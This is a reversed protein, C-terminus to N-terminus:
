NFFDGFDDSVVDGFLENVDAEQTNENFENFMNEVKPEVGFVFSSTDEIVVTTDKYEERRIDPHLVRLEFTEKDDKVENDKLAEEETLFGLEIYLRQEETLPKVTVEKAGKFLTSVLSVAKYENENAVLKSQYFKKIAEREVNIVFEQPVMRGYRKTEGNLKMFEQVYGKFKAINGEVTLADKTFVVTHSVKLALAEDEKAFGIYRPVFTLQVEGNYYSYNIDGTIKLKKDKMTGKKLEVMTIRIMDYETVVDKKEDLNITYKDSFKAGNIINKDNRESWPVKKWEGNVTLYVNDSQGFTFLKLTVDNKGDTVPLLLTEWSKGTTSRLLKDAEIDKMKCVFSFRKSQYYREM